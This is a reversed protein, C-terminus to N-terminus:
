DLLVKSGQMGVVDALNFMTAGQEMAIKDAAIINVEEGSIIQIADTAEISVNKDSIITIGEADDIVVSMGNNNTVIIKGPTFLAEKGQKNKISKHDPNSRGSSEEHASSIVYAQTEDMTPFYLRVSDGPEPMCYWGTGDPSSYVTSYAYWRTGAEAANEDENISLKVVDKQVSIIKGDLSAGILAYNYVKPSSFDEKRKLFYTHYLEAGVLESNIESVYLEQGNLVVCDGLHYIERERVVHYLMDKAPSAEGSNPNLKGKVRRVSYDSTTLTHRKPNIPAGFYFKKGELYSNPLLVTNFHSALRKAFAWDTELYQAVTGPITSESGVSMLFDATGYSKTATTLMSHYSIDQNQFTRTHPLLDLEYTGSTIELRLIRVDNLVDIQFDTIIGRFIIEENNDASVAALSAEGNQMGMSLYESEKEAPIFGSVQFVGHSNEAQHGTLTELGILKFPDLKVIYERM